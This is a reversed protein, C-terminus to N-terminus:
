QSFDFRAWNVAGTGNGAGAGTGDNLLTGVNSVLGDVMTGSASGAAQTSGPFAAVMDGFQSGLLAMKIDMGAWVYDLSGAVTLQENVNYALPIVLRGVSVESRVDDGSNAAVFSDKTYETGMGGQAFVGAGFVLQGYKRSYGVAPMYYADGGSKANPMGTFKSTIDPGLKGLALDMRGNSQQLGLTAPNNMVSATGNDTAMSAGGMAAAVPGYGELNMGNTAIAQGSICAAIATVLATYGTKNANM